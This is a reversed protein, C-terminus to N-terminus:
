RLWFAFTLLYATLGFVALANVTLLNWIPKAGNSINRVWFIQLIAFPLTLFAPWILGWALGFLLASALLLYAGLILGHHLSIARQLGMSRLLTRRDYKEDTAFTPFDLILFYALALLTLPFSVIGVLRHYVGEQLVFGLAPAIMAIHVAQTFEGLGVDVLRLPPVAYALVTLLSLGLFLMAVPSLSGERSLLFAIVGAAALAGVSVLLAANRLQVREPRNEDNESPQEVSRLAEALMGMSFQVLVIGGLGLWFVIVKQSIGLYRAIGAGLVYTLIAFVINLPRSLRVLTLLRQM